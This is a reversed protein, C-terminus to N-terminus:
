VMALPRQVGKLTALSGELELLKLKTSLGGGFGGIRRGSAVVRHCPIVIVLKNSGCATGAARFAGPNGAAMAVEAYSLVDGYPISAIVQWVRMQFDSGSPDLPLDFDRRDGDFYQQLQRETEALIAQANPDNAEIVGAVLGTGREHVFELRQLGNATAMAYLPGIPTEFVAEAM